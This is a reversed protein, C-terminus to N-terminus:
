PRGGDHKRAVDGRRSSSRRAKEGGGGAEGGALRECLSVLPAMQAAWTYRELVCRRAAAGLSRQEEESALLRGVRAIWEEASDAQVVEAGAALELGELGQASSVVARGMSMAELIKNQIGRAIRLPCVAVSAAALYPRVDPVTGTVIVGPAQVLRSVAPAPDRGVIAFTLAPERRKLEGWVRRVFWCVGDVNPRYDMTGTFVLSKPGLDAPQVADPRFHEADVGNSVALVNGGEAALSRAEAASVLVVADCEALARRELRAVGAAERRYLWRKPWPADAAYAAWKASDVDVLDAVRARAPAALAYALTSSSYCMALDFPERAAEQAILRRLTRSRFYGDTVSGGALLSVAGRALGLSGGAPAVLVKECHDELARADAARTRQHALSALTLRFRPALARIENFARVREGKDPPYPVRHTILLLRKV